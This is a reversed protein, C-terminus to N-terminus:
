QNSTLSETLTSETIKWHSANWVSGSEKLLIAQPSEHKIQYKEAIYNSLPRSEQVILYYAPIEDHEQVFKEYEQFAARSIPCTSSHKLLFCSDHNTVAQEFEEVTNLLIM